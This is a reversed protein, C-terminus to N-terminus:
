SFPSNIYPNSIINGELHITLGKEMLPAFMLLASIYQSSIGGVSIEARCHVVLIRLPPYGKRIYGIRAGESNLADVLLKIPRNKMHTRNRNNDM